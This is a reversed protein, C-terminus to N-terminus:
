SLSPYHVNVIAVGNSRLYRALHFADPLLCILWRAMSVVPASSVIPPRFRMYDVYRGHERSDSSRTRHWSKVLIKPTYVGGTEFHRYLNLVVQNVGGIDTVSWPVVFLYTRTKSM